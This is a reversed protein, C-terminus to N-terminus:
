GGPLHVSTKGRNYTHVFTADDYNNGLLKGLPDEATVGAFVPVDFQRLGAMVEIEKGTQHDLYWLEKIKRSGPECIQLYSVNNGLGHTTALGNDMYRSQRNQTTANATCWDIIEPRLGSESIERVVIADVFQKYRELNADKRPAFRNTEWQAIKETLQILM